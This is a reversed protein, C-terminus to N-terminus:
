PPRLLSPPSPSYEREEEGTEQRRQREAAFM